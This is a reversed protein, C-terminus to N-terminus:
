QGLEWALAAAGMAGAEHSLSAPRLEVPMGYACLASQTAALLRPQLGISGALCIREPDILTAVTLLGRALLDASELLVADFIADPTAFLAALSDPLSLAKDGGRQQYAQLWGAGGLRAEFDASPETRPTTAAGGFPLYASGFPLYARGFPLYAIEGAAGRYGRLLRGNVVVGMGIGTGLAVLVLPEGGVGYRYEALAAVNVDNEVAVPVPLAAKLDAVFRKGDVLALNPMQHLTQTRPCVSAPMGVGVAQVAYDCAFRQYLAKLQAIFAEHSHHSTAERHQALVEGGENVVTALIKTGGVDLGLAVSM